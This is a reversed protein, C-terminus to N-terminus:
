RSIAQDTTGTLAGVVKRLGVEKARRASRATALNMFNICAVALVFLAVVFFISVYQANGHGPLDIQLNSHLHIRTVPQLQFNVTLKNEDVHKKFINDIQKNFGALSAPTAKFQKDLLM